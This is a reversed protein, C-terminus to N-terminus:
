IANLPPPAREAKTHTPFTSAVNWERRIMNSLSTDASRYKIPGHRVAQIKKKGCGSRKVSKKRRFKKKKEKCRSESSPIEDFTVITQCDSKKLCCFVYSFSTTNHTYNAADRQRKGIFITMQMNRSENVDVKKKVWERLECRSTNKVIKTQKFILKNLHLSIQM